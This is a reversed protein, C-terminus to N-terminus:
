ASTIGRPKLPLKTQSLTYDSGIIENIARWLCDMHPLFLSGFQSSPRHVRLGVQVKTSWWTWAACSHIRTNGVWGCKWGKRTVADTMYFLGGHLHKMRSVVCSGPRQWLVSQMVLRGRARPLVSSKVQHLDKSQQSKYIIWIWIQINTHIQINNM